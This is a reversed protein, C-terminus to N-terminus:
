LSVITFLHTVSLATNDLPSKIEYQTYISLALIRRVSVDRDTSQRLHGDCRYDEAYPFM